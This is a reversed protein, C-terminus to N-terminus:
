LFSLRLDLLPPHDMKTDIKYTFAATAEEYHKGNERFEDEDAEAAEAEAEVEDVSNLPFLQLTKTMREPEMEMISKNTMEM